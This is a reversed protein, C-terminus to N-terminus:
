SLFWYYISLNVSNKVGDAGEKGVICVLNVGM